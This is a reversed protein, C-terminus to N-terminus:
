MQCGFGWRVTRSQITFKNHKMSRSTQEWLPAVREFFNHINMPIFCKALWTQRTNMARIQTKLQWKTYINTLVFTCILGYRVFIYICTGRCTTDIGPLKCAKVMPRQYLTLWGNYTVPELWVEYVLNFKHYAKHINQDTTRIVSLMLWNTQCHDYELM